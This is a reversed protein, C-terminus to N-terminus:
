AGTVSAPKAKAELWAAKLDFAHSNRPYVTIKFSTVLRDKVVCVAMQKGDTHCGAAESQCIGGAMAWADMGGRFPATMKFIACLTQGSGVNAVTILDPQDPAEYQGKADLLDAIADDWTM